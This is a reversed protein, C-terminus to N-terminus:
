LYEASNLSIANRLAESSATVALLTQSSSPVLKVSRITMAFNRTLQFGAQNVLRERRIHPREDVDVLYSLPLV